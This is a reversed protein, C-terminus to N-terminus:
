NDKIGVPSGDMFTYDNFLRTFSVEITGFRVCNAILIANVATRTEKNIVWGFFDHKKMEAICETQNSFPRYPSEIPTDLFTEIFIEKLRGEKFNEFDDGYTIIGNTVYLFPKDVYKLVKEENLKSYGWKFGLSFLKRQVEKNRTGVCIKCNNFFSVADKWKM